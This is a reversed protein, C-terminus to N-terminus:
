EGLYSYFGARDATRIKHCNSCVVECKAIEEEIAKQSRNAIMSSVAAVKEGRVHDLELVRLDSIGCDVCEQDSLWTYYWKRRETRLRERKDEYYIKNNHYHEKNYNHKCRRCFSQRTGKTKSRWNFESEQKDQKCKGCVMYPYRSIQVLFSPGSGTTNGIVGYLM